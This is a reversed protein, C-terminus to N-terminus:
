GGLGIVTLHRFPFMPAIRVPGINASQFLERWEQLTFARRVSLPADVRTMVNRTLMRSILGIGHYALRHRVLDSVLIAKRALRAWRHLMAVIDPESFHHLLQSAMVVDFRGAHFPADAGNARIVTIEAYDQTQKLAEHAAIADLEIAVIEVNVAKRRAWRVIAKPIDASGTGVDLISLRTMKRARVLSELGKVVSRCGGLYRNFERLHRLDDIFLEPSKKPLDMLEKATSRKM